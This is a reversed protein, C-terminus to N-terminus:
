RNAAVESKLRLIMDLDHEADNYPFGQRGAEVIANRVYFEAADLNRRLMLIGGLGNMASPNQPRIALSGYFHSEAQELLPDPAARREQVSKWHKILYANKLHYGALNLIDPHDHHAALAKKMQPDLQRQILIAASPGHSILEELVRVQQGSLIRILDEGTNNEPPPIPIRPQPSKPPVSRLVALMEALGKRYSRRFDCFILPMLFPPLGTDDLPCPIIRKELYFAAQWELKVFRSKSAARSWLLALVRTKKLVAQLEDLLPDGGELRERDIWYNVKADALDDALRYARRKNRRSYSIFVEPKSDGRM